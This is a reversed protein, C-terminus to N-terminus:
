DLNFTTKTLIQHLKKMLKYKKKKEKRQKYILQLLLEDPHEIKYNFLEQISSSTWILDLISSKDIVPRLILNNDKLIDLCISLEQDDWIDCTFPSNELIQFTDYDTGIIISNDRSIYDFIENIPTAKM